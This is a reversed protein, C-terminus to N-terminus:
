KKLVSSKIKIAAVVAMAVVAAMGAAMHAAVTEVVTDAARVTIGTDTIVAPVPIVAPEM